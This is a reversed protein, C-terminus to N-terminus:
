KNAEYISAGLAGLDAGVGMAIGAAQLRGEIDTALEQTAAQEQGLIQQGFQQALGMQSGALGMQANLIATRQAQSLGRQRLQTDLLQLQAQQDLGAAAMAAQQNMQAGQMAAQFALNSQLQSAGTGLQATLIDQQAGLGAGGLNGAVQQGLLQGYAQQGAMREQAALQAGTMVGRQQAMTAAEAGQRAAQAASQGTGSLAMSQALAAERGIGAQLAQQAPTQGAMQGQLINGLQTQTGIGAMGGAHARQLAAAQVAPSTISRNQDIMGGTTGLSVPAQESGFLEELRARTPDYFQGSQGMLNEAFLGRIQNATNQAGGDEGATLTMQLAEIEDPGLQGGGFAGQNLYGRGYDYQTDEPAIWGVQAKQTGGTVQQQTGALSSRMAAIDASENGGTVQQSASTTQTVGTPRDTGRPAQSGYGSATLTQNRRRQQEAVSPRPGGGPVLVM